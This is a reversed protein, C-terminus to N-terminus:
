RDSQFLMLRFHLHYQLQEELLVQSSITARESLQRYTCDIYLSRTSSQCHAVKGRITVAIIIAM